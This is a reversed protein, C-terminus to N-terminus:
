YAGGEDGYAGEGAGAGGYGGSGYGAGGYGGSGAPARRGGARPASERTPTTAPPNRLAPPFGNLQRWLEFGLRVEDLLVWGNVRVGQRLFRSEPWPEGSPDPQIVLRFNGSGDDTSDIFTVRGAFTGVAVSPWGTFQVAPWGEFQLRAVRGPWVLSADNGDVWLEVARASTDPVFAILPDGARVQEGGANGLVRLVTGDRPALVRQTAQRAVRSEIRLLAARAAERDTEASRLSATANETEATATARAQELAARAAELEGQAADRGARAGDRATRARAEALAALELERQSVLGQEVLLRHRVLNLVQADLDADAATLAQEAADLRDSAVRVRAESAAVAARQARTVSAQREDLVRVRDDYSALRAETVEREADLRDVLLPDNDTLEALLQGAEVHEGESVLFRTLRADIPAEITQQRELPAYAIVRGTGQASQRWPALAALGLAAGLLASLAVAIRRSRTPPAVLRTAPLALTMTRYPSM